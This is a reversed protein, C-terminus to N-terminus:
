CTGHVGPNSFVPPEADFSKRVGILAEKADEFDDALFSTKTVATDEFYHGWFEGEPGYPLWPSMYTVGNGLQTAIKKGEQILSRRKSNLVKGQVEELYMGYDDPWYYKVPTIASGLNFSEVGSLERGEFGEFEPDPSLKDPLVRGTMIYKGHTEAINRDPTVHIYKGMPKEPGFGHFALPLSEFEGKTLVNGPNALLGVSHPLDNMIFKAMMLTIMGSFVTQIM